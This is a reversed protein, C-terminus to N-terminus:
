QMAQLLREAAMRWTYNEVIRQRAAMGMSKRREPHDALGKLATVLQDTNGIEILVGCRGENGVTEPTGGIHTAVVPTGCSMAELVTIPFGEDGISPFVGIESSAYIEPLEHHPVAPHFVVRDAIGLEVSKEKLSDLDPGRGVVLVKFPYGQLEKSAVAELTTKIGKWGVIRGAYTLLIDNQGVGIKSRFVENRREPTFLETQVGNFVVRPSKKFRQYLQWANFHSCAVWADMRRAFIKDLPFFDTGHGSYLFRTKLTSPLLRPWVMDFPKTFILWDYNEEIVDERAHRAYSYREYFKRFRTGFNPVKDRPTFPFTRIRIAREGLEPRINGEGGYVTVEHGLDHLQRAFEWVATQIGGYSVTTTVDIFAIKM